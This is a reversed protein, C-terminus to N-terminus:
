NDKADELSRIIAKELDWFRKDVVCEVPFYAKGKPNEILKERITMGGFNTITSGLTILCFHSSGGEYRFIERESRLEYFIM